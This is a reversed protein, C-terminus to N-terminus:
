VRDDLSPGGEFPRADRAAALIRRTLDPNLVILRRGGALRRPTDEDPESIGYRHCLRGFTAPDTAWDDPSMLQGPYLAADCGQPRGAGLADAHIALRLNITKADAEPADDVRVWADIGEHIANWRRFDFRESTARAWAKAALTTRSAGRGGEDSDSELKQWVGSFLFLREIQRVVFRARRSDAGLQAAEESAPLREKLNGGVTAFLAKVKAIQTPRSDDPSDPLDSSRALVDDVLATSVSMRSIRDLSHFAGDSECWAHDGVVFKPQWTDLVAQFVIEEGRPRGAREHAENHETLKRAADRVSSLTIESAFLKRLLKADNSRQGLDFLAAIETRLKNLGDMSLKTDITYPSELEPSSAEFTVTKAETSVLRIEIDRPGHWTPTPAVREDGSTADRRPMWSPANGGDDALRHGAKADLSARWCAYETPSDTRARHDLSGFKIEGRVNFTRWRYESDRQDHKSSQKAWDNWVDFMPVGTEIEVHKCLHGLDVWEKRDDARWAALMALLRPVEAADSPDAEGGISPLSDDREAPPPFDALSWVGDNAELVHCPRPTDRKFNWSGPLRLVRVADGVRDVKFTSGNGIAEAIAGNLPAIRNADVPSDLLWYAHLGGGSHVLISPRPLSAAEIRATAEDVNVPDDGLPDLDCWLARTHLVDAANSSPGPGAAIQPKRAAVGFFTGVCHDSSSWARVLPAVRDNHIDSARAFASKTAYRPNIVRLEVWDGPEFLRNLFDRAAGLDITPRSKQEVSVDNKADPTTVKHM